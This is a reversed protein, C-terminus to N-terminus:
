EGHSAPRAWMAVVGLLEHKMRRECAARTILCKTGFLWFLDSLSPSYSGIKATRRAIFSLKDAHPYLIRLVLRKVQTVFELTVYTPFLL